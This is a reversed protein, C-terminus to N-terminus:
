LVTPKIKKHKEGADLDDSPDDFELESAIDDIDIEKGAQTTTIADLDEEPINAPDNELEIDKKKLGHKKKTKVASDNKHPYCYRLNTKQNGGIEDENAKAFTVYANLGIFDNNRVIYLLEEISKIIHVKVKDAKLNATFRSFLTISKDVGVKRIGGNVITVKNQRVYRNAAGETINRILKEGVASDDSSIIHWKDPFDHTLQLAKKESIVAEQGSRISLSSINLDADDGRYIDSSVNKITVTNIKVDEVNHKKIKKVTLAM